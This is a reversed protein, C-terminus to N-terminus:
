FYKAILKNRQFIYHIITIDYYDHKILGEFIPTNKPPNKKTM